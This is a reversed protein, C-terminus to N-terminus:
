ANSFIKFGYSAYYYMDMPVVINIYKTNVSRNIRFLTQYIMMNQHNFYKGYRTNEYILATTLGQADPSYNNGISDSVLRHYKQEKVPAARTWSNQEFVKPNESFSTQFFYIDSVNSHQVNSHQVNRKPFERLFKSLASSHLKQLKVFISEGSEQFGM